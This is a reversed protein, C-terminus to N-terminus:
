RELTACKPLYTILLERAPRRRDARRSISRRVAIRRIATADGYLDHILPTDHNSVLVCAGRGAAARCAEALDRQDQASFGGPAYATFGDRRDATPAYPPDCYVFDGPGAQALLARFDARVFTADRLAAAFHRLEERPFYPRTHRGFPVNFEGRRNYRCLGNYGHRNLYVFLCARRFPDRSANFEARREAYAASNNTTPVFERSCAVIFRRPHRCVIQFLSIVDANADGIIKTPVDLNLAVAGSGAFPEILRKTETPVHSRIAPLLRTKGGAWKLFSRAVSLSSRTM